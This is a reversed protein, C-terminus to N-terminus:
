CNNEIIDIENDTLQYIKYVIKNLKINNEQIKDKLIGINYKSDEFLNLLYEEDFNKNKNKIEKLFEKYSLNHFNEIKKSFNIINLNNRLSDFLKNEYEEIEKNLTIINDVLIILNEQNDLDIVIPLQEVFTKIFRFGNEGLNYCIKKFIWFLVNSNLLGLLYKLNIDESNIIYATNGLYYKHSDFTFSPENSIESYIIKEKEFLTYYAINDQIEYWEYQGPKRGKETTGSNKNKPTLEDKYNLLYEKIIPYKNINIGRRTFIIYLNKYNIRWKKIDRGRLLPKIIEKNKSDESILKNKTEEDIIFAKNLGTLIGRNINIDLNKMLTGQKLIKERLELIEPSNFTFTTSNLLSQKLYYENDVHIENDEIYNKKIQIVCTDVSAEKFVKVGTFDNYIKLQNELILKRLKEGYNAKAFKNSCIFAFIGNEKLINM